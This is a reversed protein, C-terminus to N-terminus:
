DNAVVAMKLKLKHCLQSRVVSHRPELGAM